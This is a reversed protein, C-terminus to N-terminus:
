YEWDIPTDLICSSYYLTFFTSVLFNQIRVTTMRGTGEQGWNVRVQCVPLLEEPKMLRVSQSEEENDMVM